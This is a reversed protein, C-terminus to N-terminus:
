QWSYSSCLWAGRGGNIELRIPTHGGPRGSAFLRDLFLTVNL